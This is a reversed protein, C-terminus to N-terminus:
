RGRWIGWGGLGLWLRDCMGTKVAEMPPAELGRVRRDDMLQAITAERALHEEWTPNRTNAEVPVSTTAPHAATKGLGAAAPVVIPLEGDFRPTPSTATYTWRAPVSYLRVWEDITM